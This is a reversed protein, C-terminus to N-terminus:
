GYRHKGCRECMSWDAEAGQRWEPAVEWRDSGKRCRFTQDPVIEHRSKTIANQVIAPHKGDKDCFVWDFHVNEDIYLRAYEYEPEDM